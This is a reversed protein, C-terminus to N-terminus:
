RQRRLNVACCVEDRLKSFPGVPATAAEPVGLAVAAAANHGDAVRRCVMHLGLGAHTASSAHDSVEEIGHAGEMVASGDGRGPYLRVARSDPPAARNQSRPWRLLHLQELVLLQLLEWEQGLKLVLVLVLV